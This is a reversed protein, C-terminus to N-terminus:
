RASGRLCRPGFQFAFNALVEKEMVVAIRESSGANRSAAVPVFARVLRIYAPRNVFGLLNTCAPPRRSQFCPCAARRMLPRVAVGPRSSFSGACSKALVAEARGSCGIQRMWSRGGKQGRGTRTAPAFAITGSNVLMRGAGRRSRAMVSACVMKGGGIPPRSWLQM